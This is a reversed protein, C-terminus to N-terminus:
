RAGGKKTVDLREVNSGALRRAELERALQAVIDWRGAASAARLAEALASEIRDSNRADQVPQPLTPPRTPSIDGRIPVWTHSREDGDRVTEVESRASTDLLVDVLDGVEHEVGEKPV